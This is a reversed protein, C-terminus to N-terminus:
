RARKQGLRWRHSYKERRAAIEDVVSQNAVTCTPYHGQHRKGARTQKRAHTQPENDNKTSYTSTGTSLSFLQFHLAPCSVQSFHSHLCLLSFFLLPFPFKKPPYLPSFGARAQKREFIFINPHGQPSKNRTNGKYKAAVPIPLSSSCNERLHFVCDAEVSLM